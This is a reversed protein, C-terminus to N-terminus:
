IYIYIHQFSLTTDRSQNRAPLDTTESFSLGKCPHQHLDSAEKFFLNVKLRLNGNFTLLRCGSGNFLQDEKLLHPSIGIESRVEDKPIGFVVSVATKCRQPALHLHNINQRLLLQTELIIGWFFLLGILPCQICGPFSVHFRFIFGQFLLNRDSVMMKLNWTLKRPHLNRSVKPFCPGWDPCQFFDALQRGSNSCCAM